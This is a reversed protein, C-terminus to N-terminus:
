ASTGSSKGGDSLFKTGEAAMRRLRESVAFRSASVEKALIELREVVAAAGLTDAYALLGGRFPPFGTGFIMGADVWDAESVVGEELVKAAENIM